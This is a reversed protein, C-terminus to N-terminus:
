RLEYLKESWFRKGCGECTIDDRIIDTVWECFPCEFLDRENPILKARSDAIEVWGQINLLERQFVDVAKKLHDKQFSEEFVVFCEWEKGEFALNQNVTLKYGPREVKKRSNSERVYVLSESLEVLVRFKIYGDHNGNEGRSYGCYEIEWDLIQKNWPRFGKTSEAMSLTKDSFSSLM